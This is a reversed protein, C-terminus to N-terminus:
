GNYLKKEIYQSFCESYGDFWILPKYRFTKNIKHLERELNFIYDSDESKILKIVEYNYPMWHKCKFREELSRSTIGIKFFVEKENYCRIIYLIGKKGYCAKRWSTKTWGSKERACISCGGKKNLHSNPTIKFEGHEKCIITVKDFANNGYKTKSYNYKNNHIKLAKQVFDETNDKMRLKAKIVACKPCGHKRKLHCNPEQEFEGHLSCIIKVKNHMKTYLTKSYDYKNNHLLNCEKIFEENTRRKRNKM